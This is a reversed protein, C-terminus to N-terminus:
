AFSKALEFCKRLTYYGHRTTERFAGLDAFGSLFLNWGQEYFGRYHELIEGYGIANLEACIATRNFSWLKLPSDHTQSLLRVPAPSVRFSMERILQWFDMGVRDNVRHPMRELFDELQFLNQLDIARIREDKPLEEKPPNGILVRIQDLDPPVFDVLKMLRDIVIVQSRPVHLHEPQRQLFEQEYSQSMDVADSFSDDSGAFLSEDRKLNIHVDVDSLIPVYDIPSDWAKLASGKGYAYALKDGLTESLVVTWADFSALVDEKARGMLSDWDPM